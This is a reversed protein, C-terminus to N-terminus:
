AVTAPERASELQKIEAIRLANSADDLRGQRTLLTALRRYLAAPADPYDAPNVCRGGTCNPCQPYMSPDVLQVNCTGGINPM